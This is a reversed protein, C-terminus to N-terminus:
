SRNRPGPAKESARKASDSPPAPPNEIEKAARDGSPESPPEEQTQTKSRRRRSRAFPRLSRGYSERDALEFTAAIWRAAAHVNRDFLELDLHKDRLSGHTVKSEAVKEKLARDLERTPTELKDIWRDWDFSVGEVEPKPRPHNPDQLLRLMRQAQRLLVVPERATHQDLGLCRKVAGRGFLSRVAQRLDVMLRRLERLRERMDRQRVGDEILEDRHTHDVRIIRAQRDAVLRDVARFLTTLELREGEDVFPGLLEELAETVEAQHTQLASRLDDTLRTRATLWPADDLRRRAQTAEPTEASPAESTADAPTEPRDSADAM